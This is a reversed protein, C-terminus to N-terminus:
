FSKLAMSRRSRYVILMTTRFSSKALALCGQEQVKSVNNHATMTSLIVEVGHKAAISVRNADNNSVLNGLALCGQEQVKSVNNHATMASLIAELGHNVAVSVSNEYNDCALNM